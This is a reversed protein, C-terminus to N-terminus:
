IYVIPKVLDVPKEAMLDFAPEIGDLGHFEHTILKDVDLRGSMVVSLLRETRVRGGPCLNGVMTKHACFAGSDAPNIVIEKSIGLLNALRGYVHLMGLAETVTAENGGALIVADAKAGGLYEKVQDKISGDKYSFVKEAGYEMALRRCIPRDGIAIIRGAGHLAAGAVSMLGVPGIGIVVVTDGYQVDAMEVASFGTTIMDTALVGAALSVGEPIRALNMDAFPIRFFEGFVGHDRLSTFRGGAQGGSHMYWGDQVESTLWNPTVCPVAVIDGVKFDAVLEGVEVIRGVAEHGLVIDPRKQGTKGLILNSAAGGGGINAKASHVDSTCPCVAVPELIADYPNRIEPKEITLWGVGKEPFDSSLCFGRMDM